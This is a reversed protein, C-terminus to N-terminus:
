EHNFSGYNNNRYYEPHECPPEDFEKISYVEDSNCSPCKSVDTRKYGNYGCADCNIDFMVCAM